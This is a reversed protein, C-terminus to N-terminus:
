ETSDLMEDLIQQAISTALYALALNALNEVAAKTPPSVPDALDPDSSNASTDACRLQKAIRLEEATRDAVTAV